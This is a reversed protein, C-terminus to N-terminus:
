KFDRSRMLDVDSYEVQQGCLRCCDEAKITFDTNDRIVTLVGKHCKPCDSAWQGPRVRKLTYYCLQLIPENANSGVVARPEPAPENM